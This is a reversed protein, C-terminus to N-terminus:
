NLIFLTQTGVISQKFTKRRFQQSKGMYRLMSNGSRIQIEGGYTELHQKVLRFGLGGKDNGRCSLGRIFAYEIPDKNQELIWPYQKDLSKGIGMGTDCFAVRVSLKGTPPNYKQLTFYCIGEMNDVSHELSNGAIHRIYESIQKVYQDGDRGPFWDYLIRKADSLMEDCQNPRSMIRMEVLTNSAKRKIITKRKQMVIFSLRNIEIRELYSRIEDKVNIWMVYKGTKDYIQKSLSLLIITSEPLIFEVNKFSLEVDDDEQLKEVTNLINDLSTNMYIMNPLELIM